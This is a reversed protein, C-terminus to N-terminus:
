QSTRVLELFVNATGKAFFNPRRCTPARWLGIGTM